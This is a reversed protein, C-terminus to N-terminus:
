TAGVSRAPFFRRLTDRILTLSLSANRERERNFIRVRVYYLRVSRGGFPAAGPENTDFTAQAIVRIALDPFERLASAQSSNASVAVLGVVIGAVAFIMGGDFWGNAFLHAAHRGPSESAVIQTEGIGVLVLLAAISLMLGAVALVTVVNRARLFARWQGVRYPTQEPLPVSKNRGGELRLEVPGVRLETLRKWLGVTAVRAKHPWLSGRPIALRQV